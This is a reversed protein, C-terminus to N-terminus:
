IADDNTPVKNGLLNVCFLCKDDTGALLPAGVLLLTCKAVVLASLMVVTMSFSPM